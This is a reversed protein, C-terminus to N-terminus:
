ATMDSIIQITISHAERLSATQASTDLGEKIDKELEASIAWLKMLSLNAAVGKITHAFRAAEETNGSALASELEELLNGNAFKTLLKLYIDMSGGIRRLADEVNIFDEKIYSM